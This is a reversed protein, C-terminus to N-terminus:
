AVGLEAQRRKSMAARRGMRERGFEGVVVEFRDQRQQHLPSSVDKIRGARPGPRYPFAPGPIGTTVAGRAPADFSHTMFDIGHASLMGDLFVVM